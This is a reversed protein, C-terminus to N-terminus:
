RSYDAVMAEKKAKTLKKLQVELKGASSRDAVPQVFVMAVPRRVRTYKAGRASNNHESERRTIDTTVGCYLSNDRCRVMYVFWDAQKLDSPM